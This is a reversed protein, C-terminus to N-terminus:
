YILSSTSKGVYVHDAWGMSDGLYQKTVQEGFLALLPSLDSFLNNSFDDGNNCNASSIVCFIAIIFTLRDIQSPPRPYKSCQGGHWSFIRDMM